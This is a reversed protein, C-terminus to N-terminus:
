GEYRVIVSGILGIMRLPVKYPLERNETLLDLILRNLELRLNITFDTM